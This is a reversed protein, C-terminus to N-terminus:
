IVKHWKFNLFLGSHKLCDSIKKNVSADRILTHHHYAKRVSIVNDMKTFVGDKARHRLAYNKDESGYHGSFQEDFGNLEIFRKVTTCFIGPAGIKGRMLIIHENDKIKYDILYKIKDECISHDADMFLLKECNSVHAGLNKAGGVNWEIDTDIRYLEFNLNKNEIKIDLPVLSCDDVVVLQTEKLISESMASFENIFEQEISSKVSKYFPVIVALKYM